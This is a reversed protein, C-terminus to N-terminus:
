DKYNRNIIKFGAPRGNGFQVPTEPRVVIGEAPKGSPLVVSDAIEKLGDLSPSPFSAVVPVCQAGISKAIESVTNHCFWGGEHKVQFLFLTPEKLGLQNGQVGLGMLEGQLVFRGSGYNHLAPLNLRKVAHWLGNGATERLSLNRSCVDLIGNGDIVDAGSDWVITCSSGDLKLTAVVPSNSLIMDVIDKNSLANDEDTRPAYHTPFAGKAEGSLCTPIEKEYKKVGLEGGVDAGEQWEQVHEPLASLPLVLGQSYEGRLRITKLRIPLDPSSPHALFASWPATPLITDIVVFIIRDGVKHEGKKVVTQWGLVTAIELRDANSHPRLASILEISALKM